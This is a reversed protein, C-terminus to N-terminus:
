DGIYGIRRLCNFLCAIAPLAFLTRIGIVEVMSDVPQNNNYVIVNLRYLNPIDTSWLRPNQLLFQQNFKFFGSPSINQSSKSSFAVTKGAADILNIKLSTSKVTTYENEADVQLNIKVSQQTVDCFTVLLGGGAVRDSTIPDSIHLKDKIGLTLNRYLGSYYNFDLTALPKGPPVLPNDRNDLEILICNQKGFSIKGDLKVQFPLYGGLHIQILEGNLYIKAVQMAAGFKLLVSKGEFEKSVTFFKRYRSIGQWQKEPSDVAEINATHPLSVKQWVSLQQDKKLFLDKSISDIPNRVFEWNSNFNGDETSFKIPVPKICNSVLLCLVFLKLIRRISM